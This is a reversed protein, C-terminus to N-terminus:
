DKTETSIEDRDERNEIRMRIKKLGLKDLKERVHDLQVNLEAISDGIYKYIDQVKEIQEPMLMLGDTGYKRIIRWAKYTSVPYRLWRKWHLFFKARRKCYDKIDENDMIM